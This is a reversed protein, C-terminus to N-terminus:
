ARGRGAAEIAATRIVEEPVFATAMGGIVGVRIAVGNLGARHSSRHQGTCGTAPEGTASLERRVSPSRRRRDGTRLKPRNRPRDHPVAPRAACADGTGRALAGNAAVRLALANRALLSEMSEAAARSQDEARGKLSCQSAPNGSKASGSWRLASRSCSPPSIVAAQGSYAPPRVARCRSM